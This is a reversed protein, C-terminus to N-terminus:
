IDPSVPASASGSTTKETEQETYGFYIAIDGYKGLMKSRERDEKHFQDADVWTRAYWIGDEAMLILKGNVDYSVIGAANDARGYSQEKEHLRVL